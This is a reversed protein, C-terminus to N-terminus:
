FSYRLNLYFGRGRTAYGYIENYNKDFLNEIRLLSNLNKTISYKVMVDALAYESINKSAVAGFPGLGPNYYIDKRGSIYKLNVGISLRNTPNYVVGFNATSPRRVLEINDIKQNIFVGSNFLQVHNNQTHSTDIANPNFELKGNILSVNANLWLKKAVKTNVTFEIGQNTQKGLNVYTDGRYEGYGLSDIATNKDWLYVYNISNEVVNNFIAISYSLNKNVNQKYGIEFSTSNEPKLTKNGRTIGSTFDKDTSFLQYLTPANFGTAYSAYLLKGESLKISPNIEYTVNSGFLQHQTNRLGLGLNFAKLKESLLSGSIDFHAFQNVTKVNIKLAELDVRSEFVGWTNSFYYSSFTMKEVFLGSGIVGSLGKFKFNAQLENNAVFAKNTGTFYTGDFDGAPNIKSSDDIFVQKLDTIGGFFTFSIKPNLVYSAGYSTLNRKFATTYNDDDNFAGKDVDTKQNVNKYSAYVDWKDKKFGIKGLLDTKKFGDKDLNNHKYNSPDTVSDVTANIGKVNTNFLGGNIYFGSKHTYNLGINEGFLSTGSGFKGAKLEVDTHFGPTQNKKTIINIVGGIASSGYLTSHNGRVIEIRDINSLSIESLDIGNDTASPNSIKVGDILVNTQNSNAGRTFVSQLQGPNLGAGVISLGEQMSLLEALTNAGSNKIQDNTLVTISRGVDKPNKESRTASISISQLEVTKTTDVQQAHGIRSALLLSFVLTTKRKM